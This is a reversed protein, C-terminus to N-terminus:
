RSGGQNDQYIKLEFLRIKPMADLDANELNM